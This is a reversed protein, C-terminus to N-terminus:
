GHIEILFLHHFSFTFFTFLLLSFPHSISIRDFLFVHYVLSKEFFLGLEFDLQSLLHKEGHNLVLPTVHHRADFLSLLSNMDPVRRSELKCAITFCSSSLYLDM